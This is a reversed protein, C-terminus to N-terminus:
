NPHHAVHDKTTASPPVSPASGSNQGGQRMTGGMGSSMKQMNAMMGAMQDHMKQMRAKMTPDSTSNMMAGMDTMMASMDNKMSGSDAMMPCSMAGGSGQAMMDHNMGGAPMNAKPVAPAPTSTPVSSPSTAAPAPAPHQPSHKTHAIASSAVVLSIAATIFYVSKM